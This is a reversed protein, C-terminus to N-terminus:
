RAPGDFSILMISEEIAVVPGHFNGKPNIYYFGETLVKGTHEVKGRIVYISETSPHEHPELRWGKDVKLLFTIAGSAEDVRLVKRKGGIVPVEEWPLKDTDIAIDAM